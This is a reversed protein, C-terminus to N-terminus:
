YPFSYSNQLRMLVGYLFRCELILSADLSSQTSHHWRSERGSTGPWPTHLRHPGRRNHQQWPTARQTRLLCIRREFLWHLQISAHSHYKGCLNSARFCKAQCHPCLWSLLSQTREFIDSPRSKLYMRHSQEIHPELILEFSASGRMKPRCRSSHCGRRQLPWLHYAMQVRLHRWVKWSFRGDLSGLVKM